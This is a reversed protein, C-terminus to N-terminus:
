IGATTVVKYISQNIVCMVKSFEGWANGPEPYLGLITFQGSSTGPTDLEMKSQGTSYGAAYTIMDATNHVSSLDTTISDTTQVKYIIDPDVYINIKKSGASASDSVYEAAVGLMATTDTSAAVQVLGANTVIVPDGKYVTSGTVLVYERSTIEGGGLHGCPEFGFPRDANAM